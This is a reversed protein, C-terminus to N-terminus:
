LDEVCACYGFLRNRTKTLVKKQVENLSINFTFLVEFQFTGYVLSCKQHVIDRGKGAVYANMRVVVADHVRYVVIVDEQPIRTGKHFWPASRTDDQSIVSQISELLAKPIKVGNDCALNWISNGRENVRRIRSCGFDPFLSTQGDGLFAASVIILFENRGNHTM